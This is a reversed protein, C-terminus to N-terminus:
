YKTRGDKAKNSIICTAAQISIFKTNYCTTDRQIMYEEFFIKLDSITTPKKRLNKSNAASVPQKRNVFSM